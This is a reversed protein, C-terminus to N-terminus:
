KKYTENFYQEVDTTNKEKISLKCDYWTDIIQQKEIEKATEFYYDANKSLYSYVKLTEELWEVATM